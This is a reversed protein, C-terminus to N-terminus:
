LRQESVVPLCVTKETRVAGIAVNIHEQHAHATYLTIYHLANM